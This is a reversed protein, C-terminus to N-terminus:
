ENLLKGSRLFETLARQGKLFRSLYLKGKESPESKIMTEFVTEQMTSLMVVAIPIKVYGFFALITKM